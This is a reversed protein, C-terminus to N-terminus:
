RALFSLFGSFLGLVMVLACAIWGIPERMEPNRIGVLASPLLWALLTFLVALCALELLKRRAQKDVTDTNKM